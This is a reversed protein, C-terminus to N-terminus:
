GSARNKDHTGRSITLGSSESILAVRALHAQKREFFERMTQAEAVCGCLCLTVDGQFHLERGCQCYAKRM